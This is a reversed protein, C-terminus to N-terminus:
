GKLATAVKWSGLRLAHCKQGLLANGGYGSGISKITLEEPCHMIFRRHPSLDSLSRLAKILHGQKEIDELAPITVM